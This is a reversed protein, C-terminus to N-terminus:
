LGLNNVKYFELGLNNVKLFLREADRMPNVMFSREAIPQSHRLMINLAM